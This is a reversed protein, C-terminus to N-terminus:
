WTKLTAIQFTRSVPILMELNKLKIKQAQAKGNIEDIYLTHILYSKHVRSFTSAGLVSLIEEIKKLSIREMSKKLENQKNMYYTIVYNDNAEFCIIQSIFVNLLVKGSENELIFSIDSPEQEKVKEITQTEPNTTPIFLESGGDDFIDKLFIGIAPLLSPVIFASIIIFINSNNDNFIVWCIISSLFAIIIYSISNFVRFSNKSATAKLIAFRVLMSTLFLVVFTLAYFNLSNNQYGLFSFADFFWIFLLQYISFFLSNKSNVKM